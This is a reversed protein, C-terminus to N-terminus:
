GAEGCHVCRKSILNLLINRVFFQEGCRPCRRRVMDLAFVAYLAIYVWMLTSVDRGNSLLSWVALVYLPLTLFCVLLRTRARLLQQVAAEHKDTSNENQHDDM